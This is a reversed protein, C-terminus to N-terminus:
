RRGKEYRRSNIVQACPVYAGEIGSSKLKAADHAGYAILVSPAGAAGEALRGNAHYFTLRGKLFLFADAHPWVWRFFRKTETRAFTLATGNMHDAMYALWPGADSYPPNCWVRGEWPQVLGNDVITYHKKATDWPRDVPACPDLDFPGLTEILWPPTLWEDKGGRVREHEFMRRQKM